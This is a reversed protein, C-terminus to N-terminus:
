KGSKYSNKVLTGCKPCAIKMKSMITGCKECRIEDAGPESKEENGSIPADWISSNDTKISEIRAMDGVPKDFDFKQVEKLVPEESITKYLESKIAEIEKKLKEEKDEIKETKVITEIKKKKVSTNFLDNKKTTYNEVVNVKMEQDDVIDDYTYEREQIYENSKEETEFENYEDDESYKWYEEYILYDDKSFPTKPIGLKKKIENIKAVSMAVAIVEIIFILSFGLIASIIWIVLRINQLKRYMYNSPTYNRASMNKSLPKLVFNNVYSTMLVYAVIIGLFGWTTLFIYVFMIVFVLLVTGSSDTKNEM